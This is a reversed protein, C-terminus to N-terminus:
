CGFQEEILNNFEMVSITPRVNRYINIVNTIEDLTIREEKAILVLYDWEEPTFHQQYKNLDQVFLLRDYLYKGVPNIELKIRRM